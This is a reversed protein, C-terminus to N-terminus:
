NKQGFWSRVSSLLASKQQKNKEMARIAAQEQATIPISDALSIRPELANIEMLLSEWSIFESKESRAMRTLLAHLDADAAVGDPLLATVAASLRAIDACLDDEGEGELVAPNSLHPENNLGLRINHAALSAHPIQGQYLYAFGEAVVRVIRAAIGDDITEGRAAMGDLQRGEVYEFACYTLGDAEGAEYVSLISRHKVAAKAQAIALFRQRAEPHAQAIEESLVEMAVPRSMSTQNALYLPGWDNDGIKWLLTYNGVQRNLPECGEVAASSAAPLSEAGSSVAAHNERPSAEERPPTRRVLPVPVPKALGSLGPVEQSVPAALAAEHKAVCQLLASASFPKKMVDCSETYLEYDTMDYGSIFITKMGRYLTLLKLRLTFGDMPDMVVDAILLDVGGMSEATEIAMPGSQAGFTEYNPNRRLGCLLVHLLAPDDDVVLIKM